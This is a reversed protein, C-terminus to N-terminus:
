CHSNFIVKKAISLFYDVEENYISSYMWSGNHYEYLQLKNMKVVVFYSKDKNTPETYTRRSGFEYFVFPQPEFMISFTKM